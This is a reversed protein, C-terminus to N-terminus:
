SPMPFLSITPAVHAWFLKLHEFEFTSLYFSLVSELRSNLARFKISDNRLDGFSRRSILITIKGKRCQYSSSNCCNKKGFVLVCENGIYTRAFADLM